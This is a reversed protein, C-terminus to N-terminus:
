RSVETCYTLCETQRGWHFSRCGRTVDGHSEGLACGLKPCLFLGGQLLLDSALGSAPPAIWSARCCWWPKEFCCRTATAGGGHHLWAVRQLGASRRAVAVADGSRTPRPLLGPTGVLQGVVTAGGAGGFILSPLVVEGGDNATGGCSAAPVAM